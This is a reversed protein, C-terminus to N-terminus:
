QIEERLEKTKHYAWGPKYGYQRGIESILAVNVMHRRTNIKEYIWRWDEGLAKAYTVMRKIAPASIVQRCEMITKELDAQYAPRAANKIYLEEQHQYQRFNCDVVPVPKQKKDRGSYHPCGICSKKPCYMFEIEPCLKLVTDEPKEIVGGTGDGYFNWKRRNLIYGFENINNVQDLIVCSDKGPSARLGRGCMQFYQRVSKTMKQMILFEITPLDVGYTLLDSSTLGTVKKERFGSFIIKLARKSMSGDVCEFNYGADRFQYAAEKAAKVRRSFLIAPKGDRHEKYLRIAKGYIKQKSFLVDLEDADPEEGLWNLGDAGELEPYLYIPTSLRGIKVLESLQPGEVLTTYLENMGRGNPLEPTATFAMFRAKKFEKAVAIQQDFAVHAEDPIIYDPERIINGIRRMLTDKSTVHIQFAKSEKHTADIRGHPVGFTRLTDSAQDLLKKRPLMIWARYNNRMLSRIMSSFIVTKGSGTPSQICFRKHTRAAVRAKQITELQDPFLNFM